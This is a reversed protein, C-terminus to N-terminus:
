GIGAFRIPASLAAVLLMAWGALLLIGGVPTIAGWRSRDTLVLAALSGSFLIVGALFAFGAVTEATTDPGATRFWVVAFLAFAHILAYRTGIEFTALRESSVRSRLAHSGFAGGAVGLLGFAAGIALFFRDM